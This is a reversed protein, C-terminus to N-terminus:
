GESDSEGAHEAEYVNRCIGAVRSKHDCGEVDCYRSWRLLTHRLKEVKRKM